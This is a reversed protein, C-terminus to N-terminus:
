DSESHGVNRCSPVICITIQKVFFARLDPIDYKLMAMREVGLGFAFGSYKQPRRLDGSPGLEVQSTRNRTQKVKRCRTNVATAIGRASPGVAPRPCALWM